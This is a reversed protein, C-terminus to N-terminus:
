FSKGKAKQRRPGQPRAGKVRRAEPNAIPMQCNAQNNELKGRASPTWNGIELKRKVENGQKKRALYHLVLQGYSICEDNPSLENQFFLKCRPSLEQIILDVLLANQFVGGSFALNSIKHNQAIEDALSALSMHFLYAIQPKSLGKDLLMIVERTIQQPDLTPTLCENSDYNSRTAWETAMAELYMAAEGEFSSVSSIGLLAAVADFLRGVSCTMWSQPKALMKHYLNWEKETFLPKLYKVAEPLDHCIALASLRPERSMKDGMLFPFPKFHTVRKIKGKSFRFVEGGRFTGPTEDRKEEGWGLGDWIFGLVNEEAKLLDNEALVAAFHAEHHQYDVVPINYEKALERGLNSSYYSPHKDILISKPKAGLLSMLHRLTLRFNEQTDWSELDGLYQSIYTNGEHQFAFASKLDAGLALVQADWDRFSDHIFTPAFGKSRRLIVQKQHIPTFQVVSDDQPVMIKRDNLIFADAFGSLSKIASDDEFFIPSGSLNGSTALIPKGWKSLIQSFLPTYPQMAGIKRLRPALEEAQIGSKPKQRLHCLVIPSEISLFAEKESESLIADGLLTDLDPYMLAFPKSPRRKRERLSSIANSNTADCVLLYGGIGKIALIQGQQIADVINHIDTDMKTGMNDFITLHVPCSPCSNTQSFHRRTIPSEYEDRCPICMQFQEMTTRERDYPLSTMISYRPGCNICTIFPYQFRRDSKEYLERKCDECLGLDPTILLNAIGSDTSEIIEFSSFDRHETECFSHRQIKARLPAKEILLHYFERAHLGAGDFYIHVGDLGNSVTGVVGLAHALRYVYPRFGVGQVQGEIHIHYTPM